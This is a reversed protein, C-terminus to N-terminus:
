VSAGASLLSNTVMRKREEIRRELQQLNQYHRARFETYAAEEDAGRVAFAMEAPSYNWNVSGELRARGSRKVINKVPHLRPNGIGPLRSYERVVYRWGTSKQEFKAPDTVFTGPFRAKQARIDSEYATWVAAVDRKVEAEFGLCVAVVRRAETFTEAAVLVHEAATQSTAPNQGVLSRLTVREPRLLEGDDGYIWHMTRYWPANIIRDDDGPDTFGYWGEIERHQGAHLTPAVFLIL